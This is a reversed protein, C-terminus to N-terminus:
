ILINTCASSSHYIYQLHELTARFSALSAFCVFLCFLTFSYLASSYFLLTALIQYKFRWNGIFFQQIHLSVVLFFQLISSSCSEFFIFPKRGYGLLEKLGFCFLFLLLVCVIMILISFSLSLSLGLFLFAFPMMNFCFCYSQNILSSM